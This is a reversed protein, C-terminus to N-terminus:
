DAAGLIIHVPLKGEGTDKDGFHLHSLHSCKKKLAKLNPNPLYTLIDKEGNICNLELSYDEIVKSQISVKYIQVRRRVTGYMQEISRTETQFPQLHLRTVLNTCIYSSSAGSDIMVRAQIGNVMARITAHLMTSTDLARKGMEPPQISSTASESTTGDCLSTHHRGGCKRCGRSRCKSAMHGFGTCNYCLRKRKVIERRQALILVKAATQAKITQLIASYM